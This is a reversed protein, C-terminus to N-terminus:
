PSRGPSAPAPAPVVYNALSVHNFHHMNVIRSAHKCYIYLSINHIYIYVTIYIYCINYVM